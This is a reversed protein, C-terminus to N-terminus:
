KTKILCKEVEEKFMPFIIALFGSVLFGIAVGVIQNRLKESKEMPKVFHDADRLKKLEKIESKIDDTNKVLYTINTNILKIATEANYVREEIKYIKSNQRDLQREIDKFKNNIDLDM